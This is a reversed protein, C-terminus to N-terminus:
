AFYVSSNKLPVGEKEAQLHLLSKFGHAVSGEKPRPCKYPSRKSYAKAYREEEVTLKIHLTKM